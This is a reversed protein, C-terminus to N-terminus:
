LKAQISLICVWIPTRWSGKQVNYKLYYLIILLNEQKFNAIAKDVLVEMFITFALNEISQSYM